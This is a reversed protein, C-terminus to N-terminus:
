MGSIRKGHDFHDNGEADSRKAQDGNEPQHGDSHLCIL